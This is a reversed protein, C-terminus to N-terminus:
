VEEKGEITIKVEARALLRILSSISMGLSKAKKQIAAHEQESVRARITIEKSEM